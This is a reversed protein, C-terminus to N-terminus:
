SKSSSAEEVGMIRPSLALGSGPRCVIFYAKFYIRHLLLLSDCSSKPSHPYNLVKRKGQRKFLGMRFRSFGTIRGRPGPRLSQRAGRQVSGPGRPGKPELSDPTFRKAPLRNGQGHTRSIDRDTQSHSICDHDAELAINALVSTHTNVPGDATSRRAADEASIRSNM